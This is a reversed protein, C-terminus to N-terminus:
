KTSIKILDQYFKEVSALDVYENSGHIDYGKPGIVITNEGRIWKADTSAKSLGFQYGLKEFESIIKSKPDTNLSPGSVEFQINTIGEYEKIKEELDWYIENPNFIPPTRVDLYVKSFGPNQGLKEIDGSESFYTPSVIPKNGKEDTYENILYNELGVIAKAINRISNPGEESTHSTSNSSEISLRLVGYHTNVVFPEIVIDIDNINRSLGEFIPKTGYIGGTEEDTTAIFRLNSILDKEKVDTFAKIAAASGSKNDASGRCSLQNNKFRPVKQMDSDPKVVDLHGVYTIFHDSGINREAILNFYEKGKDDSFVQIEYEIEHRDLYDAAVDIIEKSNKKTTSDIKVLDELLKKLDNNITM